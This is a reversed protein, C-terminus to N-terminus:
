ELYRGIEGLDQESLMGATAKLRLRGLLYGAQAQVLEKRTTFLQQLANLVDAATREGAKRAMQSANLAIESSKLAQKLAALRSEGSKVGLYYQRTEIIKNQRLSSLGEDARTYNARSQATLASYYGGNFLPVTLQVGVAKAEVDQNLQTIDVQNTRSLSATLDLTPYHGARSKAIEQKFSEVEYQKARLEPNNHTALAVWEDLVAPQLPHFAPFEQKMSPIRGAEGGVIKELRHVAIQLADKAEMGQAVALDLRAQAEEVDPLIAEGAKYGTKARALQEETYKRQSDSLDLNSRALVVDFYAAILRLMLENKKAEFVAEGQSTRAVGQKYKAFNASNYLPQRLSLVESKSDYSVHDQTTGSSLNFTRDAENKSRQASFSVVPLLNSRGLAQEQSSAEREALASRYDPDHQLARQYAEVLTIAAADPVAFAWMVTMLLGVALRGAM